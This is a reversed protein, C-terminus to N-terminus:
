DFQITDGLGEIWDSSEASGEISEKLAFTYMSRAAGLVAIEQKKLKIQMEVHKISDFNAKADKSLDDYDFEREGIIIKPM